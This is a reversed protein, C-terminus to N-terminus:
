GAVGGGLRAGSSNPSTSHQAHETENEADRETEHEPTTSTGLHELAAELLDKETEIKKLADLYDNYEAMQKDYVEVRKLNIGLLYEKKAFKIDM